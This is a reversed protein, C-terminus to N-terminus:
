PFPRQWTLKIADQGTANGAPTVPVDPRSVPLGIRTIVSTGHYRSGFFGWEHARAGAYLWTCGTPTVLAAVESMTALDVQIISSTDQEWENALGVFAQGGWVVVSVARDEGKKFEVSKVHTLSNVHVKVLRGPLTSTGFVAHSGWLAGCYIMQDEIPLQLSASRTMDPVSLKIIHAPQTYTGLLIHQNPEDALVAQVSHEGLALTVEVPHFTDGHFMDHTPCRLVTTPKASTVFYAYENLVLGGRIDLDSLQVYGVRKMQLLDIKVLRGAPNGVGAYAFWSTATRASLPEATLSWLREEEQLFDLRSVEEMPVLGGVRDGDAVASLESSDVVASLGLRIRVVKAPYGDVGFWAEKGDTVSGFLGGDTHPLALEGQYSLARVSALCGLLM